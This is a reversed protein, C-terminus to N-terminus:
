GPRRDQRDRQGGGVGDADDQEAGALEDEPKESPTSLGISIPQRCDMVGPARSPRIFPVVRDKVTGRDDDACGGATQEGVVVARTRREPDSDDPHDELRDQQM